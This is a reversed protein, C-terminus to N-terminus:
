VPPFASSLRCPKEPQVPGITSPNQYIPDPHHIPRPAFFPEPHHVKRPEIVPEPQHRHRPDIIPTGGAHSGGGGVGPATTNMAGRRLRVLQLDLSATILAVNAATSSVTDACACVAHALNSLFQEPLCFRGFEL